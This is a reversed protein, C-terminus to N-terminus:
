PPGPHAPDPDTFGPSSHTWLLVGLLQGCGEAGGTVLVLKMGPQHALTPLCPDPPNLLLSFLLPQTPDAPTSASMLPPCPRERPLSQSNGRLTKLIPCSNSQNPTGSFPSTQPYDSLHVGHSQLIWVSRVCYPNSGLHCLPTPGVAFLSSPFARLINLVTSHMLQLYHSEGTIGSSPLCLCSPELELGDNAVSHALM